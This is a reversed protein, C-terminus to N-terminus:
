QAATLCTVKATFEIAVNAPKNWICEFAFDQLTTAQVSTASSDSSCSGGLARAGSPCIVTSVAETSPNGISVKREELTIRGHVDPLGEARAALEDVAGQVDMDALGSGANNYSTTAATEAPCDCLAQSDVGMDPTDGGCAGLALLLLSLSLRKMSETGKPPPPGALTM